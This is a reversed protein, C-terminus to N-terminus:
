NSFSNIIMNYSDKIAIGMTDALKKASEYEPYVYVEDDNEVIKVQVDIDGIGVTQIRRDLVTRDVKYKRVGITTTNRFIIKEIEKENEKTCLVSLKYAPRNKKMFIPTFFTDLSLPELKEMVYGMIEGTTDDINTEIMELSGIEGTQIEMIRLINTTKKFDKSGAGIGINKIEFSQARKKSMFHAVIAVGTPTIHEGQESIINLKLNYSKIINAVAPVPVPMNGHMTKQIGIGEYLDSFYIEEVELDDILVCAGVIDIISDISGVEHFHVEEKAIGHAKAESQAIIDFISKANEKAIYSFDGRDIISFIDELTHHYHHHHNHDHDHDDHDHDHHHLNHKIEDQLHYQLDEDHIHRYLSDYNFEFSNSNEHSHNHDHNHDHDHHHNCSCAEGSKHNCSCSHDHENSNIQLFFKPVQAKVQKKIRKKKAFTLHQEMEDDVEVKFKYASITNKIVRNFRLKYGELELSDIADILKQRSAGLDLLAGIIMDGSIGSYMEFYLKM